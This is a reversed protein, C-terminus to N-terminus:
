PMVVRLMRSYISASVADVISTHAGIGITGEPWQRVTAWIAYGIWLFSTTKSDVLADICCTGPMNSEIWVYSQSCIGSCIPHSSNTVTQYCIAALIAVLTALQAVCQGTCCHKGYPECADVHVQQILHQYRWACWHLGCHAAVCHDLRHDVNISPHQGATNRADLLSNKAANRAVHQVSILASGTDAAQDVHLGCCHVPNTAPAADYDSAEHHDVRHAGNQLQNRVVSHASCKQLWPRSDNRRHSTPNHAGCAQFRIPGPQSTKM